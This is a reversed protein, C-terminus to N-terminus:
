TIQFYELDIGPAVHGLLLALSEKQRVATPMEVLVARIIRQRAEHVSLNRLVLASQLPSVAPNFAANELTRGSFIRGSSDQIACGARNGTYPAYSASASSLAEAVLPDQLDGEIKLNGGKKSGAMLGGSVGLDRPGFGQPLLATLRKEEFGPEEDRHILIRVTAGEEVENVFQRCHGCPAASVALAELRVAGQHWANLVASQEAHLTYCLALGPFEMNAGLFLAQEGTKAM